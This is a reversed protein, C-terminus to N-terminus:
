LEIEVVFMGNETRFSIDGGYERVVGRMNDIGYGHKERDKKSTKLDVTEDLFTNCVQLFIRGQFNRVTIRLQRNEKVKELAEKANELVNGILICLDSNSVRLSVPFQGLVECELEGQKELETVTDYIFYDAVANGTRIRKDNEFFQTNLTGIYEKIEEWNEKEALAGLGKMHKKVDHRFRRINDDKELIKEYYVKQMHICKEAYNSEMELQKKSYLMYSFISIIVIFLILVLVSLILFLEQWESTMQGLVNGQAIGAMFSLGLLPILILIFYPVSLSKFSDYIMERKKRLLLVVMIWFLCGLIESVWNIQYYLLSGECIDDPIFLSVISWLMLDIVCIFIYQLIFAEVKKKIEEQLVFYIVYMGYLTQFLIIDNTFSRVLGVFTLGLLIFLWKGLGRKVHMGLIGYSILVYKVSETIGWLVFDMIEM